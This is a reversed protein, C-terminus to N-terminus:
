TSWSGKRTGAPYHAKQFTRLISDELSESGPDEGAPIVQWWSFGQNRRGLIRRAEYYFAAFVPDDLKDWDQEAETVIQIAWVIQEWTPGQM